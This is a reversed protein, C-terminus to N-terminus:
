FNAGLRASLEHFLHAGSDPKLTNGPIVALNDTTGSEPTLYGTYAASARFHKTVWYNTTFGFQYVTIRTGPGKSAGPTKADYLGERSAGDYSANIGSVVGVLELGHQFKEPEALNKKPPRRSM